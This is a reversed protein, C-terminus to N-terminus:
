IIMIIYYLICLMIGKFFNSIWTFTKYISSSHVIKNSNITNKKERIKRDLDWLIDQAELQTLHKVSIEYYPYGRTDAFSQAEENSVSRQSLDNKNGVLILVCEEGFARDPSEIIQKVEDFSDANTVDFMLIIGSVGKTFVKRLFRYRPNGSVDWLLYPTNGLYKTGCCAGETPVYEGDSNFTDKFLRKTFCSKGVRMSGLLAIKTYNIRKDLM